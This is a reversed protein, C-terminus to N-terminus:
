QITFTFTMMEKAKAETDTEAEEKQHHHHHHPRKIVSWHEGMGDYKWICSEGGEGKIYIYWPQSHVHIQTFMCTVVHGKADFMNTREHSSSSSQFSAYHLHNFQVNFCFLLQIVVFHKGVFICLSLSQSLSLSPSVFMQGIRARKTIMVNQFFVENGYM